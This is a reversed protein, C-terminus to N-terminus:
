GKVYRLGVQPGVMSVVEAHKHAVLRVLAPVSVPQGTLSLGPRLTLFASCTPPWGKKSIFGYVAESIKSWTRRDLRAVPTLLWLLLRDAIQSPM